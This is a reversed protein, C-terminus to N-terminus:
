SCGILLFIKNISFLSKVKDMLKKFKTDEMMCQIEQGINYFYMETAYIIQIICSKKNM